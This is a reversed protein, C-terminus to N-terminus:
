QETIMNQIEASKHISANDMVLVSNQNPFPEMVALLDYIFDEFIEGNVSGPVIAVTLVGDLSLAPLVSYRISVNSDDDIFFSFKSKVV